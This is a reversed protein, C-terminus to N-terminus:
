STRLRSRGDSWSLPRLAVVARLLPSIVEVVVMDRVRSLISPRPQPDSGQTLFTAGQPRRRGLAARQLVTSVQQSPLRPTNRLLGTCAPLATRNHLFNGPRYTSLFVSGLSLSSVSDLANFLTDNLASSLASDLIFILSHDVSLLLVYLVLLIFAAYDYVRGTQARTLLTGTRHVAQGGGTPGFLELVGKDILSFTISYARKLLPQNLLRNYVADFGWKSVLFRYPTVLYGFRYLQNIQAIHLYECFYLVGTAFITSYLPILKQHVPLFEGALHASVALLSQTTSGLWFPTGFGVFLDRFFYGFFISGLSLIALAIAMRYTLEHAHLLYTRPTRSVGYFVLNLTRLSYYATFLATVIGLWYAYHGTNTMTSAAVELIPDKSYYGALFPFGMLALSGIFFMAYVYPLLRLLGGFRRMDQEGSLAHIVAGAGLFLLAKFFAHNTLHFLSLSYSSLGCAFVMYGLQSCTSYAIVKKLDNQYLGSTAAMFATAAGVITIFKLVSPALEFLASSRILLFVGATVMTAAHILASVPTPGEMADPLWTHLGIQASKGMAGLFLLLTTLTIPSVSGGGFLITTDVMYPALGFVTNFEVTQFTYFVVLLGVTFALDAIRNVIMAKIAAKNAQIRTFWFSILLYSCLGVGEWGLFLNVYNDAMVLVLMFFTFLSLYSIFRTIHPDESMYETSYLHVLTSVTLVVVLMTFTLADISFNWNVEFLDSRVWNGLTAATVDGSVIVPFCAFLYLLAASMNIIILAALQEWSVLRSSTLM